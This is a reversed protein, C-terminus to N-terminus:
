VSLELIYDQGDWPPLRNLYYLFPHFGKVYGSDLV